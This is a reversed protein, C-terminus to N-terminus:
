KYNNNLIKRAKDLKALINIISSKIEIMEIIITQSRGKTNWETTKLIESLQKHLLTLIKDINM